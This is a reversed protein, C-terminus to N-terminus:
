DTLDGPHVVKEKESTHDEVFAAEYMRVLLVFIALLLPGYVIGLIGFIPIGIIVGTITIIPHINGMKKNIWLRMLNDINTILVVGWILIGVGGFTNGSALEIIGAPVFVLPSGVVPLFSVFFCVLGWFLPDPISFIIFGISLLLGQVFAIM